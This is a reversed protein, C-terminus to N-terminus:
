KKKKNDGKKKEKSKMNFDEKLNKEEYLSDHKKVIDGIILKKGFKEIWFSVCLNWIYSQYSHRYM